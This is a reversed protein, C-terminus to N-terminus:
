AVWQSWFSFFIIKDSLILHLLSFLLPWIQKHLDLCFSKCYALWSGVNGYNIEGFFVISQPACTPHGLFSRLHTLTQDGDSDGYTLGGDGRDSRIHAAASTRRGWRTVSGSRSSPFALRHKHELRTGALETRHHVYMCPFDFWGFPTSTNM